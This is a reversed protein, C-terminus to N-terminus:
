SGPDRSQYAPDRNGSVIKEWTFSSQFNDLCPPVLRQMSRMRIFELCYQACSPSNEGYLRLSFIAGPKFIAEALRSYKKM